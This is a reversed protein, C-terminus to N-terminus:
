SLRPHLRTRHRFRHKWRRSSFAEACYIHVMDGLAGSLGGLSILPFLLVLFSVTPLIWIRKWQFVRRIRKARESEIFFSVLAVM